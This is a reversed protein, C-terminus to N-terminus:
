WPAVGMIRLLETYMISDLSTALGDCSALGDTAACHADVENLLSTRDNKWNTYAATPM